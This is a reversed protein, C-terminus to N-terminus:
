VVRSDFISIGKRQDAFRKVLSSLAFLEGLQVEDTAVVLLTDFLAIFLFRKKSSPVTM